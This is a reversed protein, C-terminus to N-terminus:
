VLWALHNNYYKTVANGKKNREVLPENGLDLKWGNQLRVNGSGSEREEVATTPLWAFCTEKM